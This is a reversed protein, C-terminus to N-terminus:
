RNRAFRVQVSEVSEPPAPIRVAFTARADPALTEDLVVDEWRYIETGSGDRLGLAVAPVEVAGDTVNVIDGHVELVVQGAETEWSYAVDRFDLGRLNVPMGFTEYAWASAPMARVVSARQVVAVAGLGFLVLCLAMWGAAAGASFPLWRKRAAVVPQTQAEDPATGDGARDGYFAMVTDPADDGPDHGDDADGDRGAEAAVERAGEGDEDPSPEGTHTEEEQLIDPDFDAEPAAEGAAEAAVFDRQEDAIGADPEAGEAAVAQEGAGATRTEAGPGRASEGFGASAPDADVAEPADTETLEAQLLEGAFGGAGSETEAERGEGTEAAADGTAPFSGDDAGAPASHAQEGAAASEQERFIIEQDGDGDWAPVAEEPRALWIHACRACRVKRGHEPIAMPLEYRTQCGPCELIFATDDKVTDGINRRGGRAARWRAVRGSLCQYM